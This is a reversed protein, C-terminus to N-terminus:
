SIFTGSEKGKLWARIEKLRNEMSGMELNDFQTMLHTNHPKSRNTPRHAASIGTVYGRKIRDQELSSRKCWISALEHAKKGTICIAM